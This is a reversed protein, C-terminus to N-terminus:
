PPHDIVQVFGVISSGRLIARQFGHGKVEEGPSLLEEICDELPPLASPFQAAFENCKKTGSVHVGSESLRTVWKM